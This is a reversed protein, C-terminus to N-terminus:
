PEVPQSGGKLRALLRHDGQLTELAQQATGNTEHAQGGYIQVSGVRQGGRKPIAGWQGSLKSFGKGPTGQAM